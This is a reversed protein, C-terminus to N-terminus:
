ATAAYLVLAIVLAVLFGGRPNDPNSLDILMNNEVTLRYNEAKLEKNMDKIKNLQEGYFDLLMSEDKTM